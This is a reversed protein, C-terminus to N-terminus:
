NISLGCKKLNKKFLLPISGHKANIEDLAEDWYNHEGKVTWGHYGMNFSELVDQGTAPNIHNIQDQHPNGPYTFSLYEDSWGVTFKFSNGIREINSGTLEEMLRGTRKYWRPENTPSNNFVDENYYDSVKQSVVDFIEDRTMIMAKEIYKNVVKELDKMNKIMADGNFVTKNMLLLTM